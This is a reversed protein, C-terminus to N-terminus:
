DRKRESYVRRARRIKKTKKATELESQKNELTETTGEVDCVLEHIFKRLIKSFDCGHSDAYTKFKGHLEKDLLFRIVCKNM